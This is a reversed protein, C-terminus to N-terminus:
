SSRLVDVLSKFAFWEPIPEGSRL